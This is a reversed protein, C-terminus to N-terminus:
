GLLQVVVKRKRPRTDSDILVIQQWTGLMLNGDVVPVTLSPGLMAAQLHASGNDDKWTEHHHYAKEYPAIRELFEPIDKVLGPEFEVTTISATSGPVFLTVQGNHLPRTELIKQVKPTLNITDGRGRSSLEIYHTTFEM